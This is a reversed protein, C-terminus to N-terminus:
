IDISVNTLKSRVTDLKKNGDTEIQIDNSARSARSARSDTRHTAGIGKDNFQRYTQEVSKDLKSRDTMQTFAIATEATGM